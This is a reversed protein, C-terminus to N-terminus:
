KNGFRSYFLLVGHAHVYRPMNILDALKLELLLEMLTQLFRIDDVRKAAWHLISHGGEDLEQILERMAEDGKKEALKKLAPALAEFRGFRLLTCLTRCIEEKPSNMLEDLSPSDISSFAPTTMEVGAHSDCNDCHGHSHSHGHHHSHSHVPTPAPSDSRSLSTPNEPSGMLTGGSLSIEEM